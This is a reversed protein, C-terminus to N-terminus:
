LSVEKYSKTAGIPPESNTILIFAITRDYGLRVIGGGFFGKKIVCHFNFTESKKKERATQTVIADM